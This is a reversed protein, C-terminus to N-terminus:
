IGEKEARYKALIDCAKKLASNFEKAFVVVLYGTIPDNNEGYPRQEIVCPIESLRFCVDELTRPKIMEYYVGDNVRFEGDEDFYVEFPLENRYDVAVGLPMEHIEAAGYSYRGRQRNYVEVFDEADKLNDFVALEHYDSYEGAVILYVKKM